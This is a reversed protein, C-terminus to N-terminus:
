FNCKDLNSLYPYYGYIIYQIIKFSIETPIYINKSNYLRNRILLWLQISSHSLPYLNYKNPSWNKKYLDIRDKFFNYLYTDQTHYKLIDIFNIINNEKKISIDINVGFKFLLDIGDYWKNKYLIYLLSICDSQSTNVDLGLIILKCFLKINCHQIIETLHEPNLLLECLKVSSKKYRDQYLQVDIYKDQFIHIFTNICKIYNEKIVYEFPTYGLYQDSEIININPHNLLIQLMKWDNKQCIYNLANHKTVSINPDAGYHLLIEALIYRKLMCTLYLPTYVGYKQNLDSKIECLYILMYINNSQIADFLTYTIGINPNELYFKYKECLKHYKYKKYNQIYSKYTIIDIDKATIITTTNKIIVKNFSKKNFGALTSINYDLNKIGTLNLM